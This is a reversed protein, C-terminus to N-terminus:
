PWAARRSYSEVGNSKVDVLLEQGCDNGFGQEAPRYFFGYPDRQQQLAPTLEGCRFFKRAAAAQPLHLPPPGFHWSHLHITQVALNILRNSIEFSIYKLVNIHSETVRLSKVRLRLQVAKARM